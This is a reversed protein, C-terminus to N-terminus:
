LDKRYADKRHRIAEIVVAHEKYDVRYIIRYVGSRIRYRKKATDIKLSGKHVPSSSLNNIIEFIRKRYQSEIARLDKEVTPRYVVRFRATM